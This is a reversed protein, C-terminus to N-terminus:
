TDRTMIYRKDKKIAFGLLLGGIFGGGITAPISTLAEASVAQDGL